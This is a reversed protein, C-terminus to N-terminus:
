KKQKIQNNKCKEVAEVLLPLEKQGYADFDLPLGNAKAEIALEFMSAYIISEFLELASECDGSSIHKNFIKSLSAKIPLAAKHVKQLAAAEDCTSNQTNRKQIELQQRQLDLQQKRFAKEDEDAYRKKWSNELEKRKQEERERENRGKLQNRAECADYGTIDNKKKYEWCSEYSIAPSSTIALAAILAAHIYKM